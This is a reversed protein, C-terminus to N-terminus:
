GCVLTDPWRSLGECFNSATQNLNVHNIASNSQCGRRFSRVMLSNPRLNKYNLGVRVFSKRNSRTRQFVSDIDDDDSQSPAHCWQNKKNTPLTGTLIRSELFHRARLPSKIWGNSSRCPKSRLRIARSVNAQPYVISSPRM